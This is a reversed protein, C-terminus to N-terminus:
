VALLDVSDDDATVFQHGLRWQSATTDPDLQYRSALRRLQQEGDLTGFYRPDLCCLDVLEDANQL